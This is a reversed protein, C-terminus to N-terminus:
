YTITGEGTYSYTIVLNGGVVKQEPTAKPVINHGGTVNEFPGTGGQFEVWRDNPMTFFILGAATKAVGKGQFAGSVPDVAGSVHVVFNGLGSVEGESGGVATWDALNIVIVVDAKMKFAREAPRNNSAMATWVLAAAALAVSPIATRRMLKKVNM